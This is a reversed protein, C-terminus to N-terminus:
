EAIRMTLVINLTQNDEGFNGVFVPRTPNEPLGIHVHECKADISSIADLVFKPNIQLVTGSLDDGSATLTEVWYEDADIRYSITVTDGQVSIRVGSNKLEYAVRKSVQVFTSFVAKAQKRDLCLRRHETSAIVSNILEEGDPFKGDIAHTQLAGPNEGSRFFVTRKSEDNLSLTDYGRRQWAGYSCALASILAEVEHKSYSRDVLARCLRFGDCAEVFPKDGKLVLHVCTLAPNAADKSAISYVRRIAAFLNDCDSIGVLKDLATPSVFAFEKGDTREIGVLDLRKPSYEYETFDSLRDTIFTYNGDDRVAKYKIARM